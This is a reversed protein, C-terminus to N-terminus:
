YYQDLDTPAAQLTSRRLQRLRAAASAHMHRWTHDNGQGRRRRKTGHGSDAPCAHQRRTNESRPPLQIGHGISASYGTEKCSQLRYNKMHRLAQKTQGNEAVSGVISNQLYLLAQSVMGLQGDDLLSYTLSRTVKESYDVELSPM